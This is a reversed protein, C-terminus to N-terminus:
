DQVDDSIVGLEVLNDWLSEIDSDSQREGNRFALSFEPKKAFLEQVLQKMIEITPRQKIQNGASAKEFNQRVQTFRRKREQAVLGLANMRLKQAVETPNLGNERMEVLLAEDPMALIDELLSERFKALKEVSKGQKVNNM